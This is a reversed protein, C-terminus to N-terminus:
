FDIGMDRLRQEIRRINDRMEQMEEDTNTYTPADYVCTSPGGRDESAGESQGMAYMEQARLAEEIERESLGAMWDSSAERAPPPPARM